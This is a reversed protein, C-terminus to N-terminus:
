DQLKLLLYGDHSAQWDILPQIAPLLCAKAAVLYDPRILIYRIKHTRLSMAQKDTLSLNCNSDKSFNILYSFLDDKYFYDATAQDMRSLYGSVLPQKHVPQYLIVSNFSNGYAVRGDRFSIPIPLLNGVPQKAIEKFV